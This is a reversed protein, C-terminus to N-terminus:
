TSFGLVELYVWFAWIRVLTLHGCLAPVSSQNAISWFLVATLVFRGGLFPTIQSRHISFPFCTIYFCFCGCLVLSPPLRCSLRGWVWVAYEREGWMCVAQRKERLVKYHSLDWFLAEYLNIHVVKLICM